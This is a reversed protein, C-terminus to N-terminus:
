HSPNVLISSRLVNGSLADRIETPGARLDVSGTLVYDVATGFYNRVQRASRAPAYGGPNASTSVIAGVKRCLLRAIPHATVRVALSHHAGRLWRPVDWRAPFVWTVPGPWTSSVRRFVEEDPFVVYPKLQAVDAAILILGKEVPRQKLRLIRFVAARDMPDCGLGYVAETPYAVVGGARIAQAAERISRLSL